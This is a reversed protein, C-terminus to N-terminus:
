EENCEGSLRLLEKIDSIDKDRPPKVNRKMEILNKISIVPIKSGSFNIFEADKILEPYLTDKGIFIDIQRYPNKTDIFTFVLANKEETMIKRKEPDLLSEAPVPVRPVMGLENLVSLLITLNDTDMAVSLDLDMTLREIGHLVVAVGGCVVYKINNKSLSLLIEKLHNNM